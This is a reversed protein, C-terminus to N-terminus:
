QVEDQAKALGLLVRLARVHQESARYPHTQRGGTPTEVTAEGHVFPIDGSLSVGWHGVLKRYQATDESSTGALITISAILPCPVGDRDIITEQPIPATIMGKPLTRATDTIWVTAIRPAGDASAEATIQTLWDMVGGNDRTVRHIQAVLKVIEQARERANQPTEHEEDVSEAVFAAEVLDELLTVVEDAPPLKDAEFSMVPADSGERREPGDGDAEDRGRSASVDGSSDGGIPILLCALM